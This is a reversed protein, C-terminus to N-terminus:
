EDAEELEAMKERLETRLGIRVKATEYFSKLTDIILQPIQLVNKCEAVGVVLTDIAELADNDRQALLNKLGNIESQIEDRTAM